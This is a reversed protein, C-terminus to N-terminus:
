KLVPDGASAGLTAAELTYVEVFLRKAEKDDDGFIRIQVEGPAYAVVDAREGAPTVVLGLAPDNDAFWRGITDAVLTFSEGVLVRFSTVDYVEANSLRLDVKM